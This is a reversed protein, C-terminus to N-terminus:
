LVRLTLAVAAIHAGDPRPRHVVLRLSVGLRDRHRVVAGIPDIHLDRPDEIGVPGVQLRAVPAHDRVEEHLREMTLWQGHVAVAQLGAGETVDVVEDRARERQEPRRMDPRHVEAVRVLHGHEVECQRHEVHRARTRADSVLRERDVVRALPAGIDREGVVDETPMGLDVEAFTESPGVLPVPPTTVSGSATARYWLSDTMTGTYSSRLVTASITRRIRATSMGSSRSNTSTSSPLLSPVRSTSLWSASLVTRTTRWSRLRPFPAAIRVPRSCTVPSRTSIWSASRSYSGFSQGFNSAGIM